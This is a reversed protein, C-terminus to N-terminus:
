LFSTSAYQAVLFLIAAGVIIVIPLLWKPIRQLLNKRKNEETKTLDNM